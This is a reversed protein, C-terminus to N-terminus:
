QASLRSVDALRLFLKEVRALLALRAAKVAEDDCIVLVDTFFADLPAALAALSRLGAEHGGRGLSREVEKE